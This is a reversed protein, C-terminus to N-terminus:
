LALSVVAGYCIPFYSSLEYALPIPLRFRSSPSERPLLWGIEWGSLNPCGRMLLLNRTVLFIMAVWNVVWDSRLADSAFCARRPLCPQVGCTLRFWTVRASRTRTVGCDMCHPNRVADNKMLRIEHGDIV